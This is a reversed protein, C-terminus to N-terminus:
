SVRTRKPEVIEFMRPFEDMLMMLEGLRMPDGTVKIKGAGVAEPFTTLKAIVEDLLDGARRGHLASVPIPDGLGLSLFEWRDAERRENDAKNAVVLVPRGTKRVWGAIQEDDDNAGVSADVVFLVLDAQRVAVEVQRSVKEDLESGAPLWGGTDILLFRHGLWEAETEKRDRTVGPRDEVIAVQEGVIRNFLTSKGVNPRGIVVVTPLDGTTTDRATTDDSM